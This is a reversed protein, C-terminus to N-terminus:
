AFGLARWGTNPPRRTPGPRLIDSRGGAEAFGLASRALPSAPAVVVGDHAEDSQDLRLGLTLLERTTLGGVITTAPVEACAAQCVGVAFIATFVVPEAPERAREDCLEVRPEVARAAV